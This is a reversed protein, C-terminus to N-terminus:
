PMTITVIYNIPDWDVKAGFGEVIVRIPVMTRGNKIYPPVISLVNGNVVATNNGIQLGIQNNGLVVTIGQTEPVWTVQAGFAEAIARLPLFTRGDKIEPAADLQVVKDNVTMVDSGI